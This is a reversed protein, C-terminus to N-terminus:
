AISSTDSFSVANFQKPLELAPRQYEKGMRCSSIFIVPVLLCIAVPLKCYRAQGRTFQSMVRILLYKRNIKQRM